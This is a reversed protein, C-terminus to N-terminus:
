LLGDEFEIAKRTEPDWEEAQPNYPKGELLARELRAVLADHGLETYFLSFEDDPNGKFREHYRDILAGLESTMRGEYMTIHYGLDHRM